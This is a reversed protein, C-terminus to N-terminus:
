VIILKAAFTSSKLVSIVIFSISKSVYFLFFIEEHDFIKRTTLKLFSFYNVQFKLFIKVLKSRAM